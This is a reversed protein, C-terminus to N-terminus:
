TNLIAMTFGTQFGCLSLHRAMTKLWPEILVVLWINKCKWCVWNYVSFYKWIHGHLSISQPSSPVVTVCPCIASYLVAIKWMSVSNEIWIYLNSELSEHVNDPIESWKLDLKRCTFEKVTHQNKRHTSCLWWNIQWPGNGIWLYHSNNKGKLFMKKGAAETISADICVQPFM